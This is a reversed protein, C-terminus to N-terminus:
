ILIVIGIQSTQTNECGFIHINFPSIVYEDNRPTLPNFLFFNVDSSSFKLVQNVLLHTIWVWLLLKQSENTKLSSGDKPLYSEEVEVM